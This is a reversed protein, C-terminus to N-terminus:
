RWIKKILGKAAGIHMKCLYLITSMSVMFYCVLNPLLIYINTTNTTELKIRLYTCSLILIPFVWTYLACVWNSFLPYNALYTEGERTFVDTSSYYKRNILKELKHLYDYQREIQVVVQYYRTSVGFLLFWLLSAILSSDKDITVGVNKTLYDTITANVFDASAIQLSFFAIIVLLAYFLSDRQKVSSLHIEYTDKYHSCLNNFKAELLPDQNNLNNRPKM